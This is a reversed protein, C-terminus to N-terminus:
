SNGPFAAKINLCFQADRDGFAQRKNLKLKNNIGEPQGTHM